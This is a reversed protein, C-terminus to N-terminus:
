LVSDFGKARAVLNNNQNYFEVIQPDETSGFEILIQKTTSDNLIVNFTNQNSELTYICKIKAVEINEEYLSIIYDIIKM